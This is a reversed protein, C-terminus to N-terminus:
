IINYCFIIRFIFYKSYTESSTKQNLGMKKKFKLLMNYCVNLFFQM